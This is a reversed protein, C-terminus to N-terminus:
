VVHYAANASFLRANLQIRLLEPIFNCLYNFNPVSTTTSNSGVILAEFIHPQSSLEIEEEHLLATALLANIKYGTNPVV